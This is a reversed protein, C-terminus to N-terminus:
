QFVVLREDIQEKGNNAKLLYMGAPVPIPFHTELTNNEFHPSWTGIERGSIDYLEIKVPGNDKFQYQVTVMGSTNPNPYVTIASSQNTTTFLRCRYLLRLCNNNCRM